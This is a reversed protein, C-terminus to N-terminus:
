AGPAPSPSRGGRAGGPARERPHTRHGRGDGPGHRAPRGRHPGRSRGIRVRPHAVASGGRGSRTGAPRRRRSRRRRVLLRGILVRDTRAGGVLGISARQGSGEDLDEALTALVPTPALPGVAPVVRGADDRVAAGAVGHLSPTAGVGITAIAAVPDVPVSGTTAETTAAAGQMTRRLRPWAAPVRELDSTGIGSWVIVVGLPADHETPCAQSRGARDCRPSRGRSAWAGGRDDPRGPRHEHGPLSRARASGPESSRWRCGPRVRARDSPWPVRGMAPGAEVPRLGVVHEAVVDPSRGERYGSAVM